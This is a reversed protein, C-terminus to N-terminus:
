LYHQVREKFEAGCPPPNEVGRGLKPRPSLSGTGMPYFAPHAGPGTQLPAYSRVKV